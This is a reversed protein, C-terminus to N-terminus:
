KLLEDLEELMGELSDAASVADWDPESGHAGNHAQLLLRNLRNSVDGLKQKDINQNSRFDPLHDALYMADHIAQDASSPNMARLSEIIKSGHQQLADAAQRLTPETPKAPQQKCGVSLVLVLVFIFHTPVFGRSM